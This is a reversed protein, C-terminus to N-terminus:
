AEPLRNIVTELRYKQQPEEIDCTIDTRIHDEAIHDALYCNGM